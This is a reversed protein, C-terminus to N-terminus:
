QPSMHMRGGSEFSLSLQRAVRNIGTRLDTPRWDDPLASRRYTIHKANSPRADFGLYLPRETARGVAHLMEHVSTPKGNALLVTRSTRDAQEVKAAIYDGIDTSLVYDRLTDPGGFISSMAHKKANEILTNVLGSRGAVGSFGYVSSPRYIHATMEERLQVVRTEQQLKAEGYPRLPRPESAQDIFRQGEFLGGASSMMHFVCLAEPFVASISRTWQVVDEFAEFESRLVEWGAHFGAKGATWLIDLQDIRGDQRHDELLTRRIISLDELRQQRDLWHLPLRRVPSAAIQRLSHLVAGGILGVGFILVFRQGQATTAGRLASIIM